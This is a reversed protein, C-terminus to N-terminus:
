KKYEFEKTEKVEEESDGGNNRYEELEILDENNLEVRHSELLEIFDNENLNLNLQNTMEVLDNIINDEQMPDEVVEFFQPTLKKWVNKMTSKVIENWAVGINKVAEYINHEKLFQTLSISNQGETVKIANRFITRLYYKKFSQILGQDMPQIISTTNPPLFAIKIHEHDCPPHGPANDVLFM